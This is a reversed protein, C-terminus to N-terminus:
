VAFGEKQLHKKLAVRLRYLRVRVAGESMGAQEAIAEIEDFYWYRRLFLQRNLKSQGRLFNNIAATLEAGEIEAEFGGGVVEALEDLPLLVQPSRKQATNYAHKKLALNRVVRLLFAALNQPQQPPILQWIQFYADNLCENVDEAAPLINQATQRCLRDYKLKLAQLGEEQRQWLLERIQEDDM